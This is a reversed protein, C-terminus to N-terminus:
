QQNYIQLLAIAIAATLMRQQFYNRSTLTLIRQFFVLIVIVVQAEEKCHNLEMNNPILLMEMLYGLLIMITEQRRPSTFQM